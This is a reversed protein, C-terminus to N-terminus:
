PTSHFRTQLPPAQEERKAFMRFYCVIHRCVSSGYPRVANARKAFLRCPCVFNSRVFIGCLNTPAPARSLGIYILTKEPRRLRRGRGIYLSVTGKKEALPTHSCLVPPALGEGVSTSLSGNTQAFGFIYHSCPSPCRM